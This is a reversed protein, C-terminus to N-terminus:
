QIFDRIKQFMKVRQRDGGRWFYVNGVFNFIHFVEIECVSIM